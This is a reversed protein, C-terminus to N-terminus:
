QVPAIAVDLPQSVADVQQQVAQVARAAFADIGMLEQEESLRGSALVRCWGRGLRGRRDLRPPPAPRVTAAAQRVVQGPLGPMVLQGLGFARARGAALRADIDARVPAFLEIVPRRRQEHDLM